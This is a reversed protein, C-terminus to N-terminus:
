DDQETEADGAHGADDAAPDALVPRLALLETPLVRAAPLRLAVHAEFWWAGAGRGRVGAAARMAAKFCRATM